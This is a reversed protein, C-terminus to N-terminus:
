TQAALAWAPSKDFITQIIDILDWRAARLDAFRPKFTKEPIPLYESAKM